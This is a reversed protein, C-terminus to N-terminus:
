SAAGAPLQLMQEGEFALIRSVLSEMREAVALLDLDLTNAQEEGFEAVLLAYRRMEAAQDILGHAVRRGVSM